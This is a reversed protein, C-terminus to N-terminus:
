ATYIEVYQGVLDALAHYVAAGTDRNCLYIVGNQTYYKGNELAMNGDYPIPDDVTGAHEEDIREYLSETGNGPIWDAQFKPNPNKCKYLKGDYVFRFGADAEIVGLKVCEDWTPFLTKVSLATKDDLIPLITKVTGKYEEHAARTTSLERQAAVKEAEAADREQEATTIKGVTVAIEGLTNYGEHVYEGIHIEGSTLADIDESTVAGNFVFKLAPYSKGNSQIKDAIVSLVDIERNNATIIM